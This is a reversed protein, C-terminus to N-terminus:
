KAATTATRTTTGVPSPTARVHPRMRSILPQLHALRIMHRPRMLTTATEATTGTIPSPSVPTKRRGSPTCVSPISSPTQRSRSRATRSTMITPSKGTSSRLRGSITKKPTARTISGTPLGASSPTTQAPRGQCSIAKITKLTPWVPSLLGTATMRLIRKSRCRPFM